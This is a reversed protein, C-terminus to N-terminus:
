TENILTIKDQDIQQDNKKSYFDILFDNIM